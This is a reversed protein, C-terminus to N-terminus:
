IPAHLMLYKDFKNSHGSSDSLYGISCASIKLEQHHASFCACCQCCYIFITYRQMKNTTSSFINVTCPGMFTLVLKKLVLHWALSSNERFIPVLVRLKTPPTQFTYASMFSHMSHFVKFYSISLLHLQNVAKLIGFM